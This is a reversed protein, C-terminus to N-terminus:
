ENTPLTEEGDRTSLKELLRRDVQNAFFRVSGDGMLFHAGTGAANGFGEADINLGRGIIRWNRTDGWAPYNRSIEGVILTNSLGDFIDERTVESNVGFVGAQAVGADNPLVVDGGVGAFHTIGYEGVPLRRPGGGSLFPPVTRSMPELNLPGDWPQDLQIQAFLEQEGIYPLLRTLWGHLHQSKGSPALFYTGGSPYQGNEDYYGDLATGVQELHMRSYELSNDDWLGLRSIVMPGLLIGCAGLGIGARAWPLGTIRGRSRRIEGVAINGLVLAALGCAMAPVKSWFAPIVALLSAPVALAGLVLAWVGARSRGSRVAKLSIVLPVAPGVPLM